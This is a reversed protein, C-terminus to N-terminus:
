NGGLKEITEDIEQKLRFDIETAALSRLVPLLSKVQDNGPQKKALEQTARLANVIATTQIQELRYAWQKENKIEDPKKGMLRKLLAVQEEPDLIEALVEVSSLDGQTALRIAANHRVRASTDNLLRQLHPQAAEGGVVGIAFTAAIRISEDEDRTLKVLTPLLEEHELKARSVDQAINDALLAIAEISWQRVVAEQADRQTTAARLLAELGDDVHMEGLLKCLWKRLDIQKPDMRYKDTRDLEEDLIAALEKATEHNNKFEAYREMHIANALNNAAIWRREGSSRLDKLYVSPDSPRTVYSLTMWILVIVSVIVGPVVFLQLLFGANPPEVPPLDDASRNDSPEVTESM